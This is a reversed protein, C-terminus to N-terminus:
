NAAEIKFQCNSFEAVTTKSKLLNIKKQDLNIVVQNAVGLNVKAVLFHGKTGNNLSPIVYGYDNVQTSNRFNATSSIYGTLDESLMKYIVESKQLEFQNNEAMKNVIGWRASIEVATLNDKNECYAFQIKAIKMIKAIDDWENANSTATFLSILSLISSLIIKKM